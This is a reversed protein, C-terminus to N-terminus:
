GGNGGNIVEIIDKMAVQLGDVVTDVKSKFEKHYNKRKM